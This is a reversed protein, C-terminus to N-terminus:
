LLSRQLTVRFCVWAEHLEGRGPSTLGNTNTNRDVEMTNKFEQFHNELRALNKKRCLLFYYSTCDSPPTGNKIIFSLCCCCGPVKEVMDTNSLLLINFSCACRSSTTTTPPCYCFAEIVHESTFLSDRILQGCVEPNINRLWFVSLSLSPSTALWSGWKDAERGSVITTVQCGLRSIVM